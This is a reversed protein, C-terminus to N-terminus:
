RFPGSLSQSRDISQGKRLTFQFPIIKGCLIEQCLVCPDYKAMKRFFFHLNTLRKELVTYFKGTKFDIRHYIPVKPVYVSHRSLLIM